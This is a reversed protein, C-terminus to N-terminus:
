HHLSNKIFVLANEDFKMKETNILTNEENEM